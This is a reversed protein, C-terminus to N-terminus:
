CRGPTAACWYWARQFRFCSPAGSRSLVGGDLDPTASAPEVERRRHGYVLDGPIIRGDHLADFVRIGGAARDLAELAEWHRQNGVAPKLDQNGLFVPPAPSGCRHDHVPGDRSEAAGNISAIVIEVRPVWSYLKTAAPLRM